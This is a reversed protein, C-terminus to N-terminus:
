HPKKSKILRQQKVSDLRRLTKKALRSASITEEEDSINEESKLKDNDINEQKISTNKIRPKMNEPTDQVTSAMLTNVSGTLFTSIIIYYIKNM